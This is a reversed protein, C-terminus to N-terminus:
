SLIYFLYKICNNYFEWTWKSCIPYTFRSKESTVKIVVLYLDVTKLLLKTDLIHQLPFVYM